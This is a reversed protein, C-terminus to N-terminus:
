ISYMGCNIPFFCLVNNGKIKLVFANDKLVCIPFNTIKIPSYIIITILNYSLNVISLKHRPFAVTILIISEFVLIIFFTAAIWLGRKPRQFFEPAESFEREEVLFKKHLILFCQDTVLCNQYTSSGNIHFTFQFGCFM